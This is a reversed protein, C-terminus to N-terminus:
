NRKNNRNRFKITHCRNNNTLNKLAFEGNSATAIVELKLSSNIIDSIVKRNTASDEIVLVYIKTRM